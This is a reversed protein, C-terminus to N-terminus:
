ECLGTRYNCSGITCSIGYGCSAPCPSDANPGCYVIAVYGKGGTLTNTYWNGYSSYLYTVTVSSASLKDSGGAIATCTYGSPCPYGSVGTGSGGFRLSPTGQWCGGTAGYDCPGTKCCYTNGGSSGDWGYGYLGSGATANGGVYGGGGATGGGGAVLKPAVTTVVEDWLAVGAGGFQTSDIMRGQIGKLTILTGVNYYTNAILIGGAAGAVSSSYGAEGMLRIQYKGAVPITYTGVQAVTSSLTETSINNVEYM